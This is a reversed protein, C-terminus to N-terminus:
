FFSATQQNWKITDTYLTEYCTNQKFMFFLLYMITLVLAM